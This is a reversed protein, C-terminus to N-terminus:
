SGAGIASKLFNVIAGAGFIIALGIIGWIMHMQGEKRKEDNDANRIFKVVGWVFVTFAALALLTIIPELIETAVKQVFTDFANM